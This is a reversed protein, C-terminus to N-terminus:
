NGYQVKYDTWLEDVTKGTFRQFFSSSYGSEMKTNLNAAFGPYMNECYDLFRATVDYGQDWRLGQGRLVWHPSAYGANLRFFDAIGTLLGIPAEGYADWQRVRAIEHYM